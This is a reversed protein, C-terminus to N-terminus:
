WRIRSAREVVETRDCRPTARVAAHIIVIECLAAAFGASGCGLIKVRRIDLMERAALEIGGLHATAFRADLRGMLTRRVADPQEAIKVNLSVWFFVASVTFARTLAEPM